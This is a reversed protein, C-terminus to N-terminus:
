DYRMATLPDVRTARYAPVFCALMAVALLVVAALLYSVPDAAGVGYLLGSMMTTSLAAGIIGVGVGLLAVRLGQLLIWRFVASPQAGIAMRLGIENTRRTVSYSLIGYLGLAALALALASFAALLIAVFSRRSLSQSLVTDMSRVNSLPQEPDLEAVLRRIAPAVSLPDVATHVVLTERAAYAAFYLVPRPASDLGAVRTDGVLGVIRCPEPPSAALNTVITQGVPDRAGFYARQLAHNVICPETQFDDVEEPKFLRGRLVPINMTQFFGTNVSAIVAVPNRGTEPVPDGQIAFRTQNLSGALPLSTTTAVSAVGPLAAVRPLLRTYFTHAQADNYHNSPLALHAVLLHDTRFGPNVELLGNISRVLLAASVLVVLALAVEATVLTTRLSGSDSQSTRGGSRLNENPDVATSRLATIAACLLASVAAAGAAFLLVDGDLVVQQLRPIRTQGLARILPMAATALLLGMIGGLLCLVGCEVAFQSLIRGRRAGLAIRIAIEKQRSAARVLILNAVNACAILLVLGVASFLLLIPERLPGTIEERLPALYASIGANTSSNSSEIQAAIAQIDKQAGALRIGPRLRGILTLEHYNRPMPKQPNVQTFPLFVDAGIPYVDPGMIGVVQLSRKNLTIPHDLVEPAGNFHSRWFSYGLIAVQNEGRNSEHDLFDRGKIPSAGLVRFYNRTIYAPLIDVPTGAGTLIASKAGPATYGALDEFSRSRARYDDLDLESVGLQPGAASKEWLVVLRDPDRFPLPKLLVGDVLSFIATNAGIGLGLTIAVVAAYGPNRVLGRLAFVIDNGTNRM